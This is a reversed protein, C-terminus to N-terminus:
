LEVLGLSAALSLVRGSGSSCESRFEREVLSELKHRFVDAATGASLSLSIRGSEPALNQEGLSARGLVHTNWM